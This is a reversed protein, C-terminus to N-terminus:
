TKKFSQQKYNKQTHTHLTLVLKIAEDDGMKDFECNKVKTRLRTIWHDHTEDRDIPKSCFFKFQEATLNKKSTFHATLTATAQAYTDDQPTLTSFLERM